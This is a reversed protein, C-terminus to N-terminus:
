YCVKQLLMSKGCEKGGGIWPCFVWIMNRFMALHWMITQAKVKGHGPYSM